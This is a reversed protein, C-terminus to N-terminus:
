CRTPSDWSNFIVKWEFLLPDLQIACVLKLSLWVDEFLISLIHFVCLMFDVHANLGQWAFSWPILSVYIYIFIYIYVIYMHLYRGILRPKYSSRLGVLLSVLLSVRLFVFCLLVFCFLSVFCFKAFFCDFLYVRFHLQQCGLEKLRTVRM